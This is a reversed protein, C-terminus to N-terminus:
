ESCIGMTLSPQKHTYEINLTEAAPDFYKKIDTSKEGDFTIKAQFLLIESTM